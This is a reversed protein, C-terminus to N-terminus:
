RPNKLTRVLRQLSSRLEPDAIGQATREVIQSVAKNPFQRAPLARKTNTSQQPCNRIALTHVKSLGQEHILSIICNRRHRIWNAWVPSHVWVTLKGDRFLVPHIYDYAPKPLINHWARLIPKLEATDRTAQQLIWNSDTLLSNISRPAPKRNSM